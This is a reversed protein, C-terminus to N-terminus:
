RNERAYSKDILFSEVTKALNEAAKRSNDGFQALNRWYRPRFVSWLAFKGTHFQGASDIFPTLDPLRHGIADSVAKFCYCPINRAAALRAITAAEMDVLVCDPYAASLKLKEDHDAVRATTLLGL